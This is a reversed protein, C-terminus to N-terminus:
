TVTAKRQRLRRAFRRLLWAALVVLPLWPLVIAVFDVLTAVSGILTQGFEKIADQIPAWNLGEKLPKAPAEGNYNITIEVTDTITRLHDRQATTSEIDGQVQAIQQELELLDHVSKSTTGRLLTTLRERLASKTELRKDVDLVALTKDEATRSHATVEAPPASLDKTFAEVAQPPLRLETTALIMGDPGHELITKLVVCNLKACTDLHRQQTAEVAAAPLKLTFAHSVAIYTHAAIAGSSSPPPPAAEIPTEMPAIGTAVPGHYTDYVIEEKKKCGGLALLAAAAVALSWGTRGM